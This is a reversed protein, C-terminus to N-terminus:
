YYLVLYLVYWFPLGADCICYRPGVFSSFSQCLVSYTFLLHCHDELSLRFSWRRPGERQKSQSVEM